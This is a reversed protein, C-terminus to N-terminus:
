EDEDEIDDLCRVCMGMDEGYYGYINGCKCEGVKYGWSKKYKVLTDDEVFRRKYTNDASGTVGTKTLSFKKLSNNTNKNQQSNEVSQNDVDVTKRGNKNDEEAESRTGLYRDYRALGIDKKIQRTYYTNDSYANDNEKSVKGEEPHTGIRHQHTLTDGCRKKRRYYENSDILGGCGECFTFGLKKAILITQFRKHFHKDMKEKQKKSNTKIYKNKHETIEDTHRNIERELIKKILQKDM